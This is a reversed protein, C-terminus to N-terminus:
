EEVEEDFHELDKSAHHCPHVAQLCVCVSAGVDLRRERARTSTKVRADVQTTNDSSSHQQQQQRLINRQINNDVHFSSSAIFHRKILGCLLHSLIYLPRFSVIHSHLHPSILHSTSLAHLRARSLSLSCALLCSSALSVSGSRSFSLPCSKCICIIHHIHILSHTLTHTHLSFFCYRFQSSLLHLLLLLLLLM